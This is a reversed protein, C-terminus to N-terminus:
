RHVSKPVTTVKEGMQFVRKIKMDDALYNMIFNLQTIFLFPSLQEPLEKETLEIICANSKAKLKGKILEIRKKDKGNSNLIIVVTNEATEKPGHDYQAVPMGIWSLKTTESLTLSAQSATGANPGSGIVYLGKIKKTTLYNFIDEAQRKAFEQFNNFNKELARIGRLPNIGLGLYLVILTNIFSKTTPFKEEGSFLEVVKRAKKSTGLSSNPNNTIVIVSRFCDLNWVTESSEGSQSILVGQPLVRRALYNYYESAIRPHIDKGCYFLTLPAHYSSGMGLYPVGTPLKIGRNKQYCLRARSPIELIEELM